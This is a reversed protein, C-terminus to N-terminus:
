SLTIGYHDAIAQEITARTASQDSNYAILEAFRGRYKRDANNSDKFLQYETLFNGTRPTYSGTEPTAANVRLSGSGNQALATLLFLAGNEPFTFGIANATSSNEPMKFIVASAGGRSVGLGYGRGNSQYVDETRGALISRHISGGSTQTANETATFISTTEELSLGSVTLANGAAVDTAPRGNKTVLAGSIVVRPQESATAQTAHRANGSQDFLTVVFGDNGAGVWAALTGGAVEEATFNAEAGDSGRRVRVVDTTAGALKRLSWAGAAGPYSDLLGTAAAVVSVSVSQQAEPAFGNSATEDYALVAGPAADDPLVYDLGSLDATVDEGDLRLTGTLVPAPSGSYSGRTLTVTSGPAPSGAISPARLAAPALGQVTRTGAGFIRANGAVDAVTVAVSVVDSFVVGDTVAGAAGNITVDADVTAIAGAVSAYNDPDLAGQSLADQVSDGDRLAGLAPPVAATIVVPTVPGRPGLFRSTTSIDAVIKM